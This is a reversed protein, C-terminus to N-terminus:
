KSLLHFKVRLISLEYTSWNSCNSTHSHTKSLNHKKMEGVKPSSHEAITEM